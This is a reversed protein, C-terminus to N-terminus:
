DHQKLTARGITQVDNHWEAFRIIVAHTRRNSNRLGLAAAPTRPKYKCDGFQITVRRDIQVSKETQVRAKSRELREKVLVLKRDHVGGARGIRRARVKVRLVEHLRARRSQFRSFFAPQVAREFSYRF